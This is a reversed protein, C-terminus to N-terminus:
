WLMGQGCRGPRTRRSLPTLGTFGATFEGAFWTNRAQYIEGSQMAMCGPSHCRSEASIEASLGTKDPKNCRRVTM